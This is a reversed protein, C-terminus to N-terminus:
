VEREEPEAGAAHPIGGLSAVRERLVAAIRKAEEKQNPVDRFSLPEGIRLELRRPRPMWAGKPWARWAGELWCPVVPADLGATLFGIGPKFTGLAGTTTRTGEPFLILVHGEATLLDHCLALSERPNERRDFPMANVAIAFFATKPMTTFFYDRAAAPYSQHIRGLPLASMLSLADLHSGHNAVMVFPRDLPLNERGVIRFRHWVRLYVRLVGHLLYRLAYVLMDPHRPFAGLREIPTRDFDETPRYDWNEM